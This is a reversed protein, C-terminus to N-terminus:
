AAESEQNKMIKGITNTMTEIQYPKQVFADPCSGDETEMEKIDVLYGSCIVVPLYDFRSRLELFTETGSLGPMTLDLIILDIQKEHKEVMALAEHGDAATLTKFGQKKLLSVGVRRVLDEDDVVLVTYDRNTSELSKPAAPKESPPSEAAINRPLFVHFRTGEGIQSELHISGGLQKVIGFSTALGLGTGRGQEKTTFFPEFIRDQLEKPIGDGNDSVTLCIFDGTSLEPFQKAEKETLTRNSSLLKIVGDRSNGIADKANVAMNMIVQSLLNSDAMLGWPSDELELEVRISPDITAVLLGEVERLVANSNCPRLDMHSRRSFGLLSKVLEVARDSAGIARSLLERNRNAEEPKGDIEILSLNGIIGTLLNNFDHAVGGALQGIAEMKQSQRLSEELHRNETIDRLTWVRGIIDGSKDRIPASHIDLYCREHTEFVIERHVEGEPNRIANRIEESDDQSVAKKLMEDIVEDISRGAIQEREFRFLDLFLQNVAVIQGNFDEVLFGNNSGELAAQLHASTKEHEKQSQHLSHTRTEVLNELRQQYIQLDSVMQNFSTSLNKIEVSGNSPTSVSLDGSAVKKAASSLAVIPDSFRDAVIVGFTIAVLLTALTAIGLLRRASSLVGEVEDMSQLAVLVWSSSVLTQEPPLVKASYLFEASDAARFVGEPSNRWDEIKWNSDFKDLLQSEDRSTLLNGAEDLLVTRGIEGTRVRLVLDSVPNFSMRARIVRPISKDESYVPLYASLFLGEKGVYRHPRSVSIKRLEMAERFNDTYDRTEPHNESTSLMLFGTDDYLSIDTFVNSVSVLRQLERKREEDTFAPDVIFPNNQLVRLDFAASKMLVMIHEALQQNIKTIKEQESNRIALGIMSESLLFLVILPIIGTPILVLLIRNRITNM